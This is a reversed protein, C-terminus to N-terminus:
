KPEQHIKKHCSSCVWLVVYPKNYDEHHGSLRGSNDCIICNSPKTLESNKIARYVKKMASVSDPHTKGWLYIVDVYNKARARGHKAYWEKYYKAQKEKYEQKARTGDSVIINCFTPM